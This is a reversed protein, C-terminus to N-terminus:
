DDNGEGHENHPAGTLKTANPVVIGQVTCGDPINLKDGETADHFDTYHNGCRFCKESKAVHSEFSWKREPGFGFMSKTEQDASAIYEGFERAQKEVQEREVPFHAWGCKNCIRLKTEAM